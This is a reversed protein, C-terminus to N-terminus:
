HPRHLDLEADDSLGAKRKLEDISGVVEVHDPNQDSVWIPIPSGWYRQRSTAWDVNNELWEGFRGSGTSKPKWNIDKNFSVMKDKVDTTKIFWSEVPYSMLPTGKRWDFPYNHLYTEHKYMLHKSRFLTTYPVLSSTASRRLI